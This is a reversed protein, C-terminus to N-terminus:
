DPVLTKPEPWHLNNAFDGRNQMGQAVAAKIISKRELFRNARVLKYKIEDIISRFQSSCADISLV